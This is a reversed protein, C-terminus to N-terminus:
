KSFKRGAKVSFLFNAKINDDYINENAFQVPYYVINNEYSGYLRIFVKYEEQGKNLLKANIKLTNEGNYKGVEERSIINRELDTYIIDVKKTKFLNGFGVNEINITLEFTDAKKLLVNISRVVLRYGFHTDIYDYGSMGYYLKDKGLTSNYTLDKWKQIVGQHYGTNLHSLSLLRMEPIAIELNSMECVECTEGGYPLHQNIKSLWNMERTRNIRYTGVDTDSSLYCDNFLGLRSGKDNKDITFKEMEDLTKNFYTFIAIPTRALIPIEKANDLWFRFVKAKNENTAIVSSHMEGYKGLMGAEIATLTDLYKNLISSLQKIHQEIMSLSPELDAKGEFNDYAFRIVANKNQSKIESLLEDLGVLAENTIEIDKNNANVKGSFQGIDCRLHFIQHPYNIKYSVSEPNIYVRIAKYYGRDPNNISEKSEIFSKSFVNSSSSSSSSAAVIIIIIIILLSLAGIGIFFIRRKYFPINQNNFEKDINDLLNNKM